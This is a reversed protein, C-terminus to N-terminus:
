LEYRVFAGIQINEGIKNIKETMLEGITMSPDKVFSQTLLAAEERFKKEKGEMIKSIMEQPKGEQALQQKWIEKEKAVLEDSVEEPKIVLPNMATVHMAIDRAFEQFQENRAVFDTECFIKVLSGIKNNSHVYSVVIGEKTERDAKKLAKGLGQTRLIDIAKEEDGKAEDLAKKIQVVGAGTKERIKKILDLMSKSLVFKRIFALKAFMRVISFSKNAYEYIQV